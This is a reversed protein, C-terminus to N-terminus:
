VAKMKNDIFNICIDQWYSIDQGDAGFKADYTITVEDEFLIENNEKITLIGKYPLTRNVICHYKDDLKSEWIIYEDTM